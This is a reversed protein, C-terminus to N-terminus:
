NYENMCYEIGQRVWDGAAQAARAIAQEIQPGQEATFKGLVFKAPDWGDPVPGVGIRLRAISQDGLRRLIDELGKQGGSTGRARFRLKALPLNFDDCIILIEENEIKFFDRVKGVSNGSLNMYTQPWVLQVRERDIRVESLLGEFKERPPDAFHKRAFEALADFGVNHRTGQYKRGPNGLGAILKM